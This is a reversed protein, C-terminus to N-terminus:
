DQQGWVFRCETAGDTRGGQKRVEESPIRSAAFAGLLQRELDHAAQETSLELGLSKEFDIEEWGFSRARLLIDNAKGVKFRAHSVHTLLYVHSAM